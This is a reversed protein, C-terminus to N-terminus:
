RVHKCIWRFRDRATRRRAARGRSGKGNVGNTSMWISSVIYSKVMGMWITRKQTRAEIEPSIRTKIQSETKVLTPNGAANRVEEGILRIECKESDEPHESTAHQRIGWMLAAYLDFPSIWRRM